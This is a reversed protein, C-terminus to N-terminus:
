GARAGIRQLRHWLREAPGRGFRALWPPSWFIMGAGLVVAVVLLAARDLSAYLDLGYGYALSTLILTALLYNSLAMRGVAAVHRTLSSTGGAVMVLLAAHGITLPIRLPFSAGFAVVDATRADGSLMAWLGLALMPPIGVLYARQATQRYQEASWQGMFFGGKAMAMGLAMFGLTEPLAYFALLGLAKPFEMIRWLLQEGYGGRHVAMDHVVERHLLEAYAPASAGVYIMAATVGVILLQVGFFLFAAKVLDLPEHGVFRLSILGAIALLLLIDGSWFLLHHALGIPLLWYLRRRQAALGDRGDMEARDIVLLASAGFLMALLGRAKGDVLIFEVLWVLADGLGNQGGWPSVSAPFPLAIAAVNMVVVGLIAAGRLVDLPFIRDDAEIM